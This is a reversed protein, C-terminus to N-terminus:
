LLREPDSLHKVVAQLFRAAPGGDTVQHDFTLSLPMRRVVKLGRQAPVVKDEVTGVGLVGAQPPNLIPTFFEIGYVGLNTVTFTGGTFAEAPLRGARARDAVLVTAEQLEAVSLSAANRIVPVLLGFDTDVAVGLNVESHQVVGTDSWSANLVPQETLARAVARLVWATWSVEPALEERRESLETVDAWAQLTLQASQQLSMVMRRATTQRVLQPAVLGKASSDEVPQAALRQRQGPALNSTAGVAARVDQETIRGNPGTARVQALDVGLEGALRRMRPPAQVFSSQGMVARLRETAQADQPEVARAAEATNKAAGPQAAQGPGMQAAQGLGTQGAHQSGVAAAAQSDIVALTDGASATQARKVRIEKLVGSTPAEVEFTAKETQVEVLVDHAEVWDGESKYWLIVVSDMPQDSTQPLIVETM